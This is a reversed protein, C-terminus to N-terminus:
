IFDTYNNVYTYLFSLWLTPLKGLTVFALVHCLQFKQEFLRARSVISNTVEISSSLPLGKPIKGLVIFSKKFYAERFDIKIIQITFHYLWIDRLNWM